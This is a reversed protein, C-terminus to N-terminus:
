ADGQGPKGSTNAGHLHWNWTREPLHTIRHGRAIAEQCMRLLFIWDDNLCAKTSGEGETPFGGAAMAAERRVMVTTTTHHPTTPNFPKGFHGSKAFPDPGGIPDFWSYALICESDALMVKELKELHDPHFEDDSDLFAVMDSSAALLGKQKAWGAGRRETDLVVIVEDPPRTQSRVSLLARDLMKGVRAPHAPIVVSITM